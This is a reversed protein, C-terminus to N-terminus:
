SQQQLSFCRKVPPEEVPRLETWPPLQLPPLLLFFMHTHTHSGHPTKRKWYLHNCRTPLLQLARKMGGEERPRRYISQCCCLWSDERLALRPRHDKFDGAVHYVAGVGVKHHPWGTYLHLAAGPTAVVAVHLTTGRLNADPMDLYPLRRRSSGGGM